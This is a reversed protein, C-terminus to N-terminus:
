VVDLKLYSYPVALDFKSICTSLKQVGSYHWWRNESLESNEVIFAARTAPDDDSVMPAKDQEVYVNWIGSLLLFSNRVSCIDFDAEQM